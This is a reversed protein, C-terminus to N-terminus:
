GYLDAKGCEKGTTDVGDRAFLTEGMSVSEAGGFYVEFLQRNGMALFSAIRWGCYGCM